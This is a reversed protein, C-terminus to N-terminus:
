FKDMLNSWWLTKTQKHLLVVILIQQTKWLETKKEKKKSFPFLSSTLDYENLCHLFQSQQWKGHGETRQRV